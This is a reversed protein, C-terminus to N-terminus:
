WVSVPHIETMKEKEEGSWDKLQEDKIDETAQEIKEISSVILEAGAKSASLEEERLTASAEQSLVEDLAKKLPVQVEARFSKLTKEVGIKERLPSSLLVYYLNLASVIVAGSKQLGQIREGLPHSSVSKVHDAVLLSWLTWLHVPDHFITKDNKLLEEKLLGLGIDGVPPYRKNMLYLAKIAEFRAHDSPHANLIAAPIERVISWKDFSTMMVLRMFLDNFDGPDTPLVFQQQVEHAALALLSDYIPIAQIDIPEGPELPVLLAPFNEIINLLGKAVGIQPVAPGSSFLVEGAVRTALLLLAGHRELGIADVSKPPDEFDLPEADQDLPPKQVISLLENSDIGLDRSLARIKGMIFDREILKEDNAYAETLSKGPMKKNPLYHEQMRVAYAMGPDFLSAFDLWYAKLLEILGFQLFRNVLKTEGDGDPSPSTAEAEPDPASPESVRLVASQSSTRPPPAPRKSPSVARIFELFALTTEDTVMSSYAELVAQLSTAIFRSASKTQIRTHLITLMSVLCNFQIVHQPLSRATPEDEDEDEQPHLDMLAESVRLIGERPNGLRAVDQLCDTSAPLMPVLIKVLDWGINTTLKEDQLLRHLLPLGAPTLRDELITLYSLYDTAPPLAQVLLSEADQEM